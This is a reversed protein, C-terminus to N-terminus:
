VMLANKLDQIRDRVRAAEEFELDQALKRMKRELSKIEKELKQPDAGYRSIEEAALGMQEPEPQNHM